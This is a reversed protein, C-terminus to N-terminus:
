DTSPGSDGLPDRAPDRGPQYAERGPFASEQTRERRSEWWNRLVKAARAMLGVNSLGAERLLREQEVAGRVEQMEHSVMQEDHWHYLNNNM